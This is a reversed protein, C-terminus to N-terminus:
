FNRSTEKVKTNVHYFNLTTNRESPVAQPLIHLMHSMQNDKINLLWTNGYIVYTMSFTM